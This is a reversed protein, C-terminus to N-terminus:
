GKRAKWYELFERILSEEYSEKRYPVKESPLNKPIVKPPIVSGKVSYISGKLTPTSRSLIGAKELKIINLSVTAPHLDLAKGIKSQPIYEGEHEKIYQLIANVREPNQFRKKLVGVSERKKQDRKKAKSRRVSFCYAGRPGSRHVAGSRRLRQIVASVYGSSIGIHDAIETYEMPIGEHSKLFDLVKQDTEQSWKKKKSKRTETNQVPVFEISPYFDRGSEEPEIEDRRKMFDFISM